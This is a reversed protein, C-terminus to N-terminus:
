GCLTRMSLLPDSYHFGGGGCGSKRSYRKGRGEKEKTWSSGEFYRSGSGGLTITAM